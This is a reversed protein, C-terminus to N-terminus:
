LVNSFVCRLSVMCIYGTYRHMRQNICDSSVYACHPRFVSCICGICTQRKHVVYASSEYAFVCHHCALCICGICNHMGDPLCNSSGNSFECHLFPNCIRCICNYLRGLLAGSTVCSFACWALAVTTIIGKVKFIIRPRMQFCVDIALQKCSVFAFVVQAFYLSKTWDSQPGFVGRPSILLVQLLVVHIVVRCLLSQQTM